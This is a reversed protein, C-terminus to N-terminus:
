VSGSRSACDFMYSILDCPVLFDKYIKSYQTYENLLLKVKFVIHRLTLVRDHYCM